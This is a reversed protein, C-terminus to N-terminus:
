VLYAGLFDHHGRIFAATDVQQKGSLQVQLLGLIGGGTVVGVPTQSGRPLPLVTGPPENEARLGYTPAAQMIKLTRGKWTTYSGPWPSYARIRRAVTDVPLEWRILGDERKLKATYTARSGDQPVAILEGQLYKPLSRVLLYAGEEFLRHTLTETTDEPFIKERKSALVPGSDMGEDLIMLTVGAVEDGELITSTVPSPGRHLPLLSPHINVCGWRPIGLIDKPLINGYAAIVVVDPALSSLEDIVAPSRLNSPQVVRLGREIAFSKVPSAALTRGRGTRSDPQTYVGIVTHAAQLLAKLPHIAFSPSGM